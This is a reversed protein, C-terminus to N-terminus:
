IMSTIASCTKYLEDIAGKVNTSFLGSSSNDYSVENSPFTVAAYVALGGFIIVGIIFGILNTKLYFKKSKNM